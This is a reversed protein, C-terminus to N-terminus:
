EFRANTSLGIAAAYALKVITDLPSHIDCTVNFRQFNTKEIMKDNTNPNLNLNNKNM